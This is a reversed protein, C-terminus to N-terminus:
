TLRDYHPLPVQIRLYNKHCRFSQFFSGVHFDVMDSSADSFIDVIPTAGNDYVWNFMGWKAAKTASYKGENKAAGTGLSLVLM